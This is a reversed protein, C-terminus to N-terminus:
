SKNKFRHMEYAIYDLVQLQRNVNQIRSAEKQFYQSTRNRRNIREPFFVGAPPMFERLDRKTVDSDWLSVLNQTKVAHHWDQESLALMSSITDASQDNLHLWYFDPEKRFWSLQRHALQRTKSQFDALFELLTAETFIGTQLYEITSRYGIAKGPTTNETLGRKMLQWVEMFLGDMLMNECRRCIAEYLQVRPTTLVIPRFDIESQWKPITQLEGEIDIDGQLAGSDQNGSELPILASKPQQRKLDSLTLGTRQHVEIARVVRRFDNEVLKDAYEPDFTRVLEVAEPWTLNSIQEQIQTSLQVDRKPGAQKGKMLWRLYLGSGGVVIPLKHEVKLISDIEGVAMDHYQGASLEAGPACADVVDWLRVSWRDVSGFKNAGCDLGRYMKTADANVLVGNHRERLTLSIKSKGVATPGGILLVKSKSKTVCNILDSDSAKLNLQTFITSIVM